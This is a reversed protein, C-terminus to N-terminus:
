GTNQHRSIRRVPIDFADTLALVAEGSKGKPLVVYICSGSCTFALMTLGRDSLAKAAAHFIGYRDGFHPGQFFVLEAPSVRRMLVEVPILSNLRDAVAKEALGSVLLSLEFESTSAWSFALHFGIGEEGLRFLCLGLDSMASLPGSVEVLCLDTIKQFGYTKIRPEWYAAKTELLRDSHSLGESKLHQVSPRQYIM